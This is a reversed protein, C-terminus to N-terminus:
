GSDTEQAVSPNYVLCLEMRVKEQPARVMKCIHYLHPIFQPASRSPLRPRFFSFARVCSCSCSSRVAMYVDINSVHKKEGGRRPRSAWSFREQSHCSSQVAKGTRVQRGERRDGVRGWLERNHRKVRMSLWRKSTSPRSARSRAKSAM